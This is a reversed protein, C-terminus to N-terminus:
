VKSWNIKNIARYATMTSINFSFAIKKYSLGTENRMKRMEIVKENNLVALPHSEGPHGPCFGRGKNKMDKMNEVQTGLFLHDPNVCNRIDCKHLVMTKPPIDGKFLKWSVRHAKNENLANMAGYGGSGNSGCWFWCESIGFCVKEFFRQFVTKGDNQNNKSKKKFLRALKPVLISEKHNDLGQIKCLDICVNSIESTNM